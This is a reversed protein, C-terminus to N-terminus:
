RPRKPSGPIGNGNRVDEAEEPEMLKEMFAIYDYKEVERDEKMQLGHHAPMSAILSDIMEDPILSHRLDVETVYPKGDAVENFSHFVQAASHQDETVSVMFRIFGEFAVEGRRNAISGFVDHMEDEDYNLGLSALAAAFEAEHLTNSGDRDFHRFVSEFEELQIPTLNTVDRVVRQNQLFALKKTVASQVLSLEYVLEDYTYTTFDNEEINAETCCQDLEEIRKLYEELPELNDHLRHVHQLQDDVDGDLSSLATTLTHLTLALDNAKDAFARRLDNKLDRITENLQQSRKREAATLTAWERDLVELRLDAPPAYPRLRYTGMKTKINGLLATLDSKEGTWERKRKQKYETLARLQDKAETYSASFASDNWEVKQAAIKILLARMRREFSNQMEWAGQMTEVFKEVRRGANEVREMQSFAHFWYALYTMVSREDPKAVNCVDEVDLLAPIGIENAAIDFALKMNKKHDNKDLKDYDIM